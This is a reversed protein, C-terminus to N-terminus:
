PQFNLCFRQYLFVEFAQLRDTHSLGGLGRILKTARM